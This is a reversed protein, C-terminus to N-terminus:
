FESLTSPELFDLTIRGMEFTDSGGGVIMGLVALESRTEAILQEIMNFAQSRKADVTSAKADYDKAYFRAFRKLVFYELLKLYKQIDAQSVDATPLDEEVFGLKRLSNDIATSYATDTQSTTFEADVALEAFESTLYSKASTRNV